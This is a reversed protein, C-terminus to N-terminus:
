SYYAIQESQKGTWGNWESKWMLVEARLEGYDRSGGNRNRWIQKQWNIWKWANSKAKKKKTFTETRVKGGYTVTKLIYETM